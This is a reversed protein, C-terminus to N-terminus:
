RRTPGALQNANLEADGANFDDAGTEMSRLMPAIAERTLRETFVAAGSPLPHHADWLDRDALWDRADILPLGRERSLSRVCENVGARVDAPYMARFSSGEPMLVLAVPIELQRCLDLLVNLAELPQRVLQFPGMGERYQGRAIELYRQREADTIGHLFHPEWGHEDIKGIGPGTPPETWDPVLFAQVSKHLASWPLLRDRWWRRLLRGPESHFRLLHGIESYRMRGSQLWQEELTHRGAQNFVPPLIEVFLLDPRIGSGLLRRLCLLEVFPGGGSVGFNYVVAPVGNRAVNVAGAKFGLAMRSSGLMLVLPRGPAEELRDRLHGAKVTFEPDRAGPLFHEVSIAGGIQFVLFFLGGWFLALRPEPARRCRIPPM